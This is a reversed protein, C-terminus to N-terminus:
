GITKQGRLDDILTGLVSRVDSASGAAADLSRKATLNTVSFRGTNPTEFDRLRQELAAILDLMYARTIESGPPRPLPRSM